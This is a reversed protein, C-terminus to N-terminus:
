GGRRTRGLGSPATPGCAGGQRSLSNGTAAAFLLNLSTHVFSEEFGKPDGGVM